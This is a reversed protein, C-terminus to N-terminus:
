ISSRKDLFALRHTLQELGDLLTKTYSRGNTTDLGHAPVLDRLAQLAPDEHHFLEIFCLELKGTEQCAALLAGIWGDDSSLCGRTSPASAHFGGLEGAQAIESILACNEPISLSSDGCHAADVIVKFFSSGMERNMASVVDWARQLDTFTQFEGQRLFEIHWARIASGEVAAERCARVHAKALQSVAAEYDAGERRTAGDKMWEELSTSAVNAIEYKKAAGLGTVLMEVFADEDAPSMPDVGGVMLILHLTLGLDELGGFLEDYDASAANAFYSIQVDTVPSGTREMIEQMGALVVLDGDANRPLRNNEDPVLGGVFKCHTPVVGLKVSSM